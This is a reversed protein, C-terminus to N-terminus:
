QRADREGERIFTDILDLDESARSKSFSYLLIQEVLEVENRFRREDVVFIKEDRKKNHHSVGTFYRDASVWVSALGEQIADTTPGESPRLYQIFRLALEERSPWRSYWDFFGEIDKLFFSLCPDIVPDWAEVETCGREELVKCWNKKAEKIKGILVGIPEKYIGAHNPLKEMLERMSHAAQPFREPNESDDLVRISGIYMQACSSDRELLEEYLDQQQGTLELPPFDRSKPEREPM